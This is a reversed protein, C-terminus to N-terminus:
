AARNSRWRGDNGGCDGGSPCAPNPKRLGDVMLGVSQKTSVIVWVTIESPIETCLIREMILIGVGRV